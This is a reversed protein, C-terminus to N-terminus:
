SRQAPDRVRGIEDVGVKRFGQRQLMQASYRTEKMDKGVRNPVNAENHDDLVVYAGSKADTIKRVRVIRQDTGMGLAGMDDIHLRM